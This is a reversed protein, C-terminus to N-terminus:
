YPGAALLDGENCTGAAHLKSRWHGSPTTFRRGVGVQISPLKDPGGGSLQWDGKPWYKGNQQTARIDSFPRCSGKAFDPRAGRM